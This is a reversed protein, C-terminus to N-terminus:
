VSDRGITTRHRDLLEARKGPNWKQVISFYGSVRTIGQINKAQHSAVELSDWSEREIAPYGFLTVTDFNLNKVEIGNEVEQWEFNGESLNGLFEAKTM